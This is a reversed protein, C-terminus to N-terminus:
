IVLFAFHILSSQKPLRNEDGFGSFRITASEIEPQQALLNQAQQTTKGAIREKIQQQAIPSIGYIWTSTAQ